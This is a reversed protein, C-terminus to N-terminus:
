ELDMKQRATGFGLMAIRLKELAALAPGVLTNKQASDCLALLRAEVREVQLARVTLLRRLITFVRRLPTFVRRHLTL